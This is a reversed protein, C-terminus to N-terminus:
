IAGLGATFATLYKRGEVWRGLNSATNIHAVLVTGASAKATIAALWDSEQPESWSEPGIRTARLEREWHTQWHDAGSDDIGPIMLYKVCCSFCAPDDRSFGGAIPERLSVVVGATVSNAESAV